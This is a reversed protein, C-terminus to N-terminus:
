DQLHELLRFLAADDNGAVTTWTYAIACLVIGASVVVAAWGWASVWPAQAPDRAHTSGVQVAVIAVTVSLAASSLAVVWLGWGVRVDISAGLIEMSISTLRVINSVAVAFCAVSAVFVGFALPAAWRVSSRTRLVERETVLAIGSVAGLTLTANGWGDFDLGSAGITYVQLWPALSGVVIGVSAAIGAILSALGAPAPKPSWDGM